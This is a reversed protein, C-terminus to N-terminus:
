LLSIDKISIRRRDYKIIGAKQLEGLITSVSQRCTATLRAIESHTLGLKVEIRGPDGAISRGHEAAIERILSRIREEANKCILSELRSQVKMVRGGLCKLIERNLGPMDQMLEQMDKLSIMCVVADEMVEATEEREQQGTIGLEGFIEGPNIINLIIEKGDATSRYIKVKGEKLIYVCDATESPFYLVQKKPVHEMVATGAVRKREELSLVHRFNFNDLYWLKTRVLM